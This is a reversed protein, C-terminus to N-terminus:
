RIEILQRKINATITGTNNANASFYRHIAQQEIYMYYVYGNKCYIVIYLIQHPTGITVVIQSLSYIHFLSYRCVIILLHSLVHRPISFLKM